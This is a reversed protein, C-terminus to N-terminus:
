PQPPRQAEALRQPLAAMIDQRAQPTLSVWARIEDLTRGCGSCLGVARDFACRKVCPSVIPAAGTTATPANM